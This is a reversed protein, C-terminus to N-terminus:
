ERPIGREKHRTVDQVQQHSHTSTQASQVPADQPFSGSKGLKIVAVSGLVADPGWFAHPQCRCRTDGARSRPKM